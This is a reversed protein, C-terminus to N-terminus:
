SSIQWSKKRWFISVYLTLSNLLYFFFFHLFFSVFGAHSFTCILLTLTSLDTIIPTHRCIFPLFFLCSVSFIVLASCFCWISNFRVSQPKNAAHRHQQQQEIWFFHMKHQARWNSIWVSVPSVSKSQSRAILIASKFDFIDLPNIKRLNKMTFTNKKRMPKQHDTRVTCRCVQIRHIFNVRKSLNITILLSPICFFLVCVYVASISTFKDVSTYDSTSM